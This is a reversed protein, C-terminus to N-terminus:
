LPQVYKVFKAVFFGMVDLQLDSPDFRQIRQCQEDTLGRGSLGPRGIKLDIPVLRMIPYERLIYSVIDENELANVTCTSYTMYGGPKLLAVAESIFYQQHTSYKNLDGVVDIKLKPRLGLASCPPDLLIRDFSDPYFAKINLLGDKESPIANILLEKVSKSPSGDRVVCHSSDLALPTICTAGFNGFLARCSIMKKRSKDCAVITANNGVLSALHSTKGGPAACMDLILDGQQPSLVHAVLVSPINQLMMKSSLVGHLPPLIPGVRHLASMSVGLGSTQRFMDTRTCAATGLGLFVCSGTTFKELAQGRTMAGEIAAYVAVEEGVKIGTDASMIGKCYIDAGRLVAEGCFRDCLVVRHTGPWGNALRASKSPNILTSIYESAELPGNRHCLSATTERIDICVVDHLLEHRTILVHDSELGQSMAWEALLLTLEQIVLEVDALILNVRCVTTAPPIKMRELTAQLTSAGCQSALESKVAHSLTVNWDQLSYISPRSM